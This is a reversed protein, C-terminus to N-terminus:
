NFLASIAAFSSKVPNPQEVDDLSQARPSPIDDPNVRGRERDEDVVRQIGLADLRQGMISFCEGSLANDIFEDHFKDIENLIAGNNEHMKLIFDSNNFYHRSQQLSQESSQILSQIEYQHSLLISMKSQHTWYEAICGLIGKSQTLIRLEYTYEGIILAVDHGVDYYGYDQIINSLVSLTPPELIGSQLLSLQLAVKDFDGYCNNVNKRWDYLSGLFDKKMREFPIQKEVDLLAVQVDHCTRINETDLEAADIILDNQLIKLSELLVPVEKEVEEERVAKQTRARVSLSIGASIAMIVAYAYLLIDTSLDIFQAIGSLLVFLAPGVRLQNIWPISSGKKVFYVTCFVYFGGIVTLLIKLNGDDISYPWFALFCLAIQCFQFSALYNYGFVFDLGVSPQLFNGQQAISLQTTLLYITLFIVIVVPSSDCVSNTAPFIPDNPLCRFVSILPFLIPLFLTQRLLVVIMHFPFSEQVDKRHAQGQIVFPVSVVVFWFIAIAMAAWVYGSEISSSRKVFSNGNLVEDVMFCLYPVLLAEGIMGLAVFSNLWTMRALRPQHAEKSLHKSNWHSIVNLFLLTLLLIVYIAPSPSSYFVAFTLGVIGFWILASIAMVPGDCGDGIKGVLSHLMQDISGAPIFVFFM